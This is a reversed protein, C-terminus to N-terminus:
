SEYFISDTMSRIIKFNFGTKYTLTDPNKPGGKEYDFERALLIKDSKNEAIIALFGNIEGNKNKENVSPVATLSAYDFIYKTNLTDIINQLSDNKQKFKVIEHEFKESKSNCGIIILSMLIIVKKM